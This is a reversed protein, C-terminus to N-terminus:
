KRVRVVFGPGAPVVLNLDLALHDLGEQALDERALDEPLLGVPAPGLAPVVRGDLDFLGWGMHHFMQNGRLGQRRNVQGECM